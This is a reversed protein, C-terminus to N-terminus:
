RADTRSHIEAHNTQYLRRSPQLKSCACNQNTPEFRLAFLRPASAPTRKRSHGDEFPATPECGTLRSEKAPGQAITGIRFVGQIAEVDSARSAGGAYSGEAHECGGAMMMM